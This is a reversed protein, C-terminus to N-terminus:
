PQRFLLWAGVSLLFGAVIVLVVLGKYLLRTAMVKSRVGRAVMHFITEAEHTVQAMRVKDWARHYDDLDQGAV